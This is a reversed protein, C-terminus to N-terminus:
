SPALLLKRFDKRLPYVYVDKVPVKPMHDRDNRTRGTTCGVRIWNAARYSAGDFRSRDVYTEALALPHGYRERCDRDLRRLVTALLHSALHPVRIWPPILFRRNNIILPLNRRRGSSDWGIYEDRPKVKWAAAGFLFCGLPRGQRDLALYKLSQGVDTRYGLYHYRAILCHFLDRAYGAGSVQVLDIPRLDALDAAIPVTSHLVDLPRRGRRHNHAQGAREPLRILGLGELKLLLSRCAMDKQRGTADRWEWIRCLERSLRTRHWSPNDRLLSRILALDSESVQRGQVILNDVM